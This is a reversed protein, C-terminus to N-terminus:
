GLVENIWINVDRGARLYPAPAGLAVLGSGFMERTPNEPVLELRVRRVNASLSEHLRQERGDRWVPYWAALVVEGRGEAHSLLEAVLLYDEEDVYPPDAMMLLRSDTSRLLERARRFGDDCEVTCRPDGGLREELKRAVDQKREVLLMRDEDGLLEAAHMPSGPYGDRCAAVYDAVSEPLDDRGLLRGIGNQWEGGPQLEYQGAGAHTEIYTIPQPQKKLERLLIRLLVHKHVDAFNGAHKDHRYDGV